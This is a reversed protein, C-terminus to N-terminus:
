YESLGSSWAYGATSRELVTSEFRPSGESWLYGSGSSAQASWVWDTSAPDTVILDVTEDSASIPRKQAVSTLALTVVVAALLSCLRNLRRRQNM